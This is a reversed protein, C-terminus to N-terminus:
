QIFFYMKMRAIALIQAQFKTNFPLEVLKKLTIRGPHTCFLIDFSHNKCKGFDEKTSWLFILILYPIIKWKCCGCWNVVDIQYPLIINIRSFIVTGHFYSFGMNIPYKNLLHPQNPDKRLTQSITHERIKLHVSESDQGFTSRSWPKRHVQPSRIM